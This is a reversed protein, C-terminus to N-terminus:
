ALWFWSNKRCVEFKVFATVTLSLDSAFAHDDWKCGHLSKAKVETSPIELETFLAYCLAQNTMNWVLPWRLTPRIRMVQFTRFSLYNINPSEELKASVRRQYWNRLIFSVKLLYNLKPWWWLSVPAAQSEASMILIIYADCQGSVLCIHLGFWSHYRICRVM